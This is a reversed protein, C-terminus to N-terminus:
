VEEGHLRGCDGHGKCGCPEPWLRGDQLKDDNRGGDRPHHWNKLGMHIEALNLNQQTM